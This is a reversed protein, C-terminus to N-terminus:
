NESVNHQAFSLMTKFQSYIINMTVCTRINPTLDQPVTDQM